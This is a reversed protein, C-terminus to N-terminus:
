NYYNNNFRNIWLYYELNSMANEGYCIEHGAGQWERYIAYSGSNKMANVLRIAYNKNVAVGEETSGYWVKIPPIKPLCYEKDGVTILHSM